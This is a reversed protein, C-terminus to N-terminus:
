LRADCQPEDRQALARSPAVGVAPRGRDADRIQEAELRQPQFRWLLTNQPDKLQGRAVDAHQSSRRYAASTVLLRTMAKQDWGKAMFEDALWDLLEPHTPPEGLNGFDSAYPTLGRRFCLQWLRNM